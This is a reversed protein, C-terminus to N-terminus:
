SFSNSTTYKKLEKAWWRLSLIWTLKRLEATDKIAMFAILSHNNWNSTNFPRWAMMLSTKIKWSHWEFVDNTSRDAWSLTLLRKDTHMPLGYDEQLSRRRSRKHTAAMFIFGIPRKQSATVCKAMRDNRDGCNPILPLFYFWLVSIAIGSLAFQSWGKLAWKENNRREGCGALPSHHWHLLLFSM